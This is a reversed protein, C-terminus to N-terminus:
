NFNLIIQTLLVNCFVPTTITAENKLFELHSTVRTFFPKRESSVRAGSVVGAIVGEGKDNPDDTGKCVLPGGSDGKLVNTANSATCIFHRMNRKHMRSCQYGPILRLNAWLLIDSAKTENIKGWGSALCEMSGYEMKRSALPLPKVYENFRFLTKTFAICIDNKPFWYGNQIAVRTMRRWQETGEKDKQFEAKNRLTGAVVYLKTLSKMNYQKCLTQCANGEETLCHAATLVKNEAIVSGGCFSYYRAKKNKKKKKKSPAKLSVQYPIEGLNAAVGNVVRFVIDKNKSTSTVPNENNMYKSVTLPMFINVLSLIALVRYM